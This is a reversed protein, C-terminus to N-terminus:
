RATIMGTRPWRLLLGQDTLRMGNGAGNSRSLFPGGARAPNLGPHRMSTDMAIHRKHGKACVTKGEAAFGLRVKLALGRCCTKGGAVVRDPRGIRGEQEMVRAHSLSHRVLQSLSTGLVAWAKMLYYTRIASALAYARLAAPISPRMQRHIIVIQYHQNQQNIHNSIAITVSVYLEARLDMCIVSVTPNLGSLPNIFARRDVPDRRRRGNCRQSPTFYSM